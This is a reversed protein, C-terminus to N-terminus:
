NAKRFRCNMRVSEPRVGEYAQTGHTYRPIAPVPPEAFSSFRFPFNPWGEESCGRGRGKKQLYTIRRSKLDKTKSTHTGFPTIAANKCFYTDRFPNARLTSLQCNFASLVSRDPAISSHLFAESSREPSHFSCPGEPREPHLIRSPM